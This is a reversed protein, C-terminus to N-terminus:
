GPRKPKMRDAAARMKLFSGLAARKEEPEPVGTAIRIFQDDLRRILLKEAISLDATVARDYAEIERWSIPAPVPLAGNLGGIVQLSRTKALEGFVEWVYSLPEPFTPLARDGRQAAGAFVIM